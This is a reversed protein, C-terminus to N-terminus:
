HGFEKLLAAVARAILAATDEAPGTRKLAARQDELPRAALASQARARVADGILGAMETLLALGAGLREGASAAARIRAAGVDRLRWAFRARAGDIEGLDGTVGAFELALGAVTEHIERELAPASTARILADLGARIPVSVQAPPRPDPALSLISLVRGERDLVLHDEVAAGLAWLSCRVEGAVDRVRRPAHRRVSQWEERYYARGRLVVKEVGARLQVCLDPSPFHREHPAPTWELAGDLFRGLPDGDGVFRFSELLATFLSETPYPGRYRLRAVGQDAALAAILNLVATGAGAPLRAPEALPPIHSIAGWDLAEFVTLPERSRGAPGDPLRCLQDSLGWPEHVAARPEVGIWKGGASRVVASSLRGDENWALAAVLSDGRDLELVRRAPGSGSPLCCVMGGHPTPAVLREVDGPRSLLAALRDAAVGGGARVLPADLARRLRAALAPHM